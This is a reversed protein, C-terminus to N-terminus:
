KGEWESEREKWFVTYFPRVSFFFYRQKPKKSSLALPTPLFRGNRYTATSTVSQWSIFVHSGTRLFIIDHLLGAAPNLQLHIHILISFRSRFLEVHEAETHKKRRKEVHNQKKKNAILIHSKMPVGDGVTYMLSLIKALANSFLKDSM